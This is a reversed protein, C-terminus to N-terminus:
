AADLLRVSLADAAASREPLRWGPVDPLAAGRAVVGALREPLLQGLALALAGGQGEGVLLPPAGWQEHAGIVLQELAYLADGFTAPEVEGDLGTVYWRRGVHARGLYLFRLPEPTIRRNGPAQECALADLQQAVSETGALVITTGSAPEGDPEQLRYVLGARDLLAVSM